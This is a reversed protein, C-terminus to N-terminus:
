ECIRDMQGGPWANQVPNSLERKKWRRSITIPMWSVWNKDGWHFVQYFTQVCGYRPDSCQNENIRGSESKIGTADKSRCRDSGQRSRIEVVPPRIAGPTQTINIYADRPNQVYLFRVLQGQVSSTPSWSLQDGSAFLYPSCHDPVRNNELWMSSIIEFVVM